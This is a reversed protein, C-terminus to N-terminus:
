QRLWGVVALIERATEDVSLSSNDILYDEVPQEDMAPVLYEAAALFWDPQQPERARIRAHVIELPARLRVVVVSAGPVADEIRRILSRSELVRTVILRETGVARFNEWMSGLNRHALRENWPDDRREPFAKSIQPLDVCAHLIQQQSLLSSVASATSTKGVGVPGTILLVPVLSPTPEPSM